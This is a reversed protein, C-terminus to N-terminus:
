MLQETNRIVDLDNGTQHRIGTAFISGLGDAQMTVDILGNNEVYGDIDATHIGSAINGSLNYNGYASVFIDGNNLIDFVGGSTLVMGDAKSYGFTSHASVDMLAGTDNIIDGSGSIINFGWSWAVGDGDTFSTVTIDGTNTLGSIGGLFLGYSTADENDAATASSLFLGLM